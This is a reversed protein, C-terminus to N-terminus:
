SHVLPVERVVKVGGAGVPFVHYGCHETFVMCREGAEDLIAFWVVDRFTIGGIIHGRPEDAPRSERSAVAADVATPKQESTRNSAYQGSVFGVVLCAIMVLVLVVHRREPKM